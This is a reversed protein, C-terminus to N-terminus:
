NEKGVETFWMIYYKANYNVFIAPDVFFHKKRWCNQNGQQIYSNKSIKKKLNKAKCFQYFCFITYNRRRLSRTIFCTLVILTMKFSREAAITWGSSSWTLSQFTASEHNSERVPLACRKTADKPSISLVCNIRQLLGNQLFVQLSFKLLKSQTPSTLCVRRVYLVQSMRLSRSATVFLLWWNWCVLTRATIIPCCPQCLLWFAQTNLLM